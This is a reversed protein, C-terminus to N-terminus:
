IIQVYFARREMQVGCVMRNHILTVRFIMRISMDFRQLNKLKSSVTPHLDRTSSRHGTTLVM